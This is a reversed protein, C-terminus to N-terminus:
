HCGLDQSKPNPNSKPSPSTLFRDALKLLQSVGQTQGVRIDLRSQHSGEVPAVLLFDSQVLVVDLPDLRQVPLLLTLDLTDVVDRVSVDRGLRTYVVLYM